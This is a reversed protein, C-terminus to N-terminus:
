LATGCVVILWNLTKLVSLPQFCYKLTFARGAVGYFIQLVMLYPKEKFSIGFLVPLNLHNFSNIIKAKHEIGKLLVDANFQNVAVPIGQYSALTVKGIKGEGLTLDKSDNEM